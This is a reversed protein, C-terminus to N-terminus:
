NSKCFVKVLPMAFLLLCFVLRIDPLCYGNRFTKSDRSIGNGLLKVYSRSKVLYSTWHYFQKDVDQFVKPPVFHFFYIEYKRKSLKGTTMPTGKFTFGACASNAECFKVASDVRYLGNKDAFEFRSPPIRGAVFQDRVNNNSKQGMKVAATFNEFM